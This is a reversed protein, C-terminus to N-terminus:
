SQAELGEAIFGDGFAFAAESLEAQVSQLKAIQEPDATYGFKDIGRNINRRVAKAVRLMADVWEGCEMSEIEVDLATLAEGLVGGGLHSDADAYDPNVPPPTQGERYFKKRTANAKERFHERQGEEVTERVKPDFKIADKIVSPNRKITEAVVEASPETEQEEALIEWAANAAKESATVAAQILKPQNAIRAVQLASVGFETAAEQEAKTPKKDHGVVPFPHLKSDPVDITDGPGVIDAWGDWITGEGQDDYFEVM